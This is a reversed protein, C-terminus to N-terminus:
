AARRKRAVAGLAGLGGMLLWAAAPLPIPAIRWEGIEELQPEGIQNVFTAWVAGTTGVNRFLLSNGGTIDLTVSGIPMSDDAFDALGDILDGDLVGWTNGVANGFAYGGTNTLTVQGDAPGFELTDMVGRLELDRYPFENFGLDPRTDPSGTGSLIAQTDSVRTLTFLVAADLPAAFSVALAAALVFQRM